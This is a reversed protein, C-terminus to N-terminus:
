CRTVVPGVVKAAEAEFADGMPKGPLVAVDESRESTAEGEEERLGVRADEAGTAGSEVGVHGDIDAVGPWLSGEIPSRM